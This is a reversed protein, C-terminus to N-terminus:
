KKFFCFNLTTIEETLLPWEDNYDHEYVCITLRYVSLGVSLTLVFQESLTCKSYMIINQEKQNIILDSENIMLKTKITHRKMYTRNYSSSASTHEICGNKDLVFNKNLTHIIFLKYEFTHKMEYKSNYSLLWSYIISLYTKM